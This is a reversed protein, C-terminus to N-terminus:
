PDLMAIATTYAPLQLEPQIGLRPIEMHWLHAVGGLFYIFYYYYYIELCIAEMNIDNLM